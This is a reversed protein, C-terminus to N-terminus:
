EYKNRRNTRTDQKKTVITLGAETIPLTIVNIGEFNELYNVMKYSDGCYGSSFLNNDIPDTDHLAIIGGDNLLNFCNLFDKKASEFNHDADIFAMDIKDKFHSFFSDTTEIYIEGSINRDIIDVGIKRNCFTNVKNWTEGEYLGLELYTNPNYISCLISIFDSHHKM